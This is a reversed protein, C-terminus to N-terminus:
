KLSLEVTVFFPTEGKELVYVDRDRDDDYEMVVRKYKGGHIESRIKQVRGDLILSKVHTCDVKKIYGVHVGDVVVKVANPDHPNDPEPELVTVGTDFEIQYIKEDELGADIIERKTYDYEDNEYGLQKIADQRYTIGAVHHWETKSVDQAAKVMPPRTKTIPVPEKRNQTNTSNVPLTTLCNRTKDYFSNRKCSPCRYMKAMRSLYGREKCFPCECRAQGACRNIGVGIIASSIGIVFIALIFSLLFLFIGIVLLIIGVVTIPIGSSLRPKFQGVRGTKERVTPASSIDVLPYGCSPCAPARESVEAGCEPCVILAM